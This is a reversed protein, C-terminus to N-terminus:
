GNAYIELKGFQLWFDHNVRLSVSKVCRGAEDTARLINFMLIECVFAAVNKATTRATALDASGAQIRVTATLILGAAIVRGRQLVRRRVAM